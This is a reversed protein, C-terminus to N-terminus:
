HIFHQLIVVVSMGAILTLLVAGLTTKISFLKKQPNAVKSSVPAVKPTFLKGEPLSSEVQVLQPAPSPKAIVQPQSQAVPISPGKAASEILAILNDYLMNEMSQKKAEAEDDILKKKRELVKNIIGDLSPRNSEPVKEGQSISPVIVEPPSIVPQPLPEAVVQPTALIPDTKLVSGTLVHEKLEVTQLQTKKPKREIVEAVDVLSQGSQAKEKQQAAFIQELETIDSGEILDDHATM